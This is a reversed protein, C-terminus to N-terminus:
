PRVTVTTFDTTDTPLSPSRSADTCRFCYPSRALPRPILCPVLGRLRHCRISERGPGHWLHHGSPTVWTITPTAQAVALTVTQTACQQWDTTDTPVLTVSLTQSGATLVAGAAPTYTLVGSVVSSADLQTASLATGYTIGAPAAWTIVPTAKNVVLTTTVTVTTFDTTDAPTFKVSLTQTGAGLTVGAAPTYVFAGTTSATADLQSAGLVTGYTIAAPSPWTITPTAQGVALTVTTTVNTYDTTDTPVLTVSLTQSGATLVSGSAPTYTLVGLVSATANM